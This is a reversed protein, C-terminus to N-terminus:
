RIIVDGPFTNRQYYELLAGTGSFVSSRNGNASNIKKVISIISDDKMLYNEYFTLDKVCSSTIWHEFDENYHEVNYSMEAVACTLYKAYYYFAIGYALTEYDIAPTKGEKRLRALSVSDKKQHRKLDAYKLFLQDLMSIPRVSDNNLVNCCARKKVTNKEKSTYFCYAENLYHVVSEGRWSLNYYAQTFQNIDFSNIGMDWLENESLYIQSRLDNLAKVTKANNESYKVKMQKEDLSKREYMAYFRTSPLLVGVTLLGALVNWRYHAFFIALSAIGWDFKQGKGVKWQVSNCDPCVLSAKESGCYKCDSQTKWPNNKVTSGTSPGPSFYNAVLTSWLNLLIIAGLFSLFYYTYDSILESLSQGFHVPDKLLLFVFYGSTIFASLALVGLFQFFRRQM